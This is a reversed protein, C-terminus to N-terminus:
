KPAHHNKLSLKYKQVFSYAEEIRKESIEGRRVAEIVADKVKRLIGPAHELNNGIILLDIGAALAKCCAEELGYHNTIAKMQMDDSIILGNFHLDQRLLKRLTASSLTAPYVKDLNKNILHGVMIAEAHSAEILLRYPELESEHWSTSLDVFGLHSDDHSSGHGPFHKLCCQIAEARHEKIWAAAHAAVTRGNDSFSRGYRGIIQNERNVNIDVVPALNVNVGAARLMRATQKASAATAQVNLTGGLEAATPTVPFGREMRFRNVKGGEQDVAILLEGGALKQLDTTLRQLQEASIINHTDKKEALFRDFLIVGGLKEERIDAVIPHNTSLADGTFGILFLQGIKQRLSFHHM